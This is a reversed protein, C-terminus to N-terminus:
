IMNRPADVSTMCVHYMPTKTMIHVTHEGTIAHYSTLTHKENITKHPIPGSNLQQNYPVWGLYSEDSM